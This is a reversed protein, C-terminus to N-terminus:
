LKDFLARITQERPVAYECGVYSLFPRGGWKTKFFTVGPDIGLGMNMFRKGQASAESIMEKMLLDSAGPVYGRSSSFNFLHFLYDKAGSEAVDFAALKGDSSRADFLTATGCARVYEAIREFISRTAEGVSHHMLFEDILAAHEEGFDRSKKVAIEKSARSLMNRVKQSIRLNEIELRYYDDRSVSASKSISSPVDPGVLSVKEPEFRKLARRFSKEYSKTSFSRELPYGIFILRGGGVYVVFDDVLHPEAGSIASVYEPVHEPVYAHEGIFRREAQTIV